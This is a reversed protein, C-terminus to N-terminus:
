RTEYVERQGTEDFAIIDFPETQGDSSEMGPSGAPMGPVAIGRIEPRETLLQTIAEAPVHGEIVYGEVEATHCSQLDPPVGLESKVRELEDTEQVEVDFGAAQLHEVWNACCGCFTPKYVKVKTPTAPEHTTAVAEDHGLEGSLRQSTTGDSGGCAAAAVMVLVLQHYQFKM